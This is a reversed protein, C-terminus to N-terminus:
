WSHYRPTASFIPDLTINSSQLWILERNSGAIDSEINNPLVLIHSNSSQSLNIQQPERAFKANLLLLEKKLQALLM